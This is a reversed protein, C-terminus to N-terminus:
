RLNGISAVVNKATRLSREYRAGLVIIVIGGAGAWIWWETSQYVARIQPEFTAIGHVIAVIGGVVFPAQLRRVLGVIVAAIALVGIAVLRWVDSENTTEFLSPLFLAMLGGGLARTSRLHPERALRLAGAVLLSLAIPISVWEVADVSGVAISAVAVLLAYTLAVWGTARDVPLRATLQSAVFLACFLSVTVLARAFGPSSDDLLTAEVAVVLTLGAVLLAQGVRPTFPRDGPRGSCQGFAAVALVGLAAAVWVDATADAPGSDLSQTVTVILLGAVGAAALADLYGRAWQPARVVSGVLLLAAAVSGVLVAEITTEGTTSLATPVVAVLLAALVFLPTTTSRRARWDLAAIILLAGALPLTYAEIASVSSEDLRWWLAATALALALWGLQRRNGPAAFLGAPSVASLLTTIAALLLVIWTQQGLLAALLVAPVAVVAVGVDGAVRLTSHSRAALALSGAAALLAAAVAALDVLVSFPDLERTISAAAWLLAPALAFAAVRRELLFGGSGRPVIWGLVAAVLLLSLVVSGASFPVALAIAAAAVVFVSRRELASLVEPLPLAALGFLVIALSAVARAPDTFADDGLRLGVAAAGGLAVATALAVLAARQPVGAGPVAWRAVILLLVTAVTGIPWTDDGAWSVTYSLVTAVVGLVTAPLLLRGFRGTRQAGARDLWVLLAVAAAAEALWGVLVGGLSGLLPVLLLALVVAAWLLPTRVREATGTLRGFLAVLVPVVVLAAASTLTDTVPDAIRSAFGLAFASSGLATNVAGVALVVVHTATILLMSVTVAAAAYAATRLALRPLATTARLAFFALALVVLTPGVTIGLMAGASTLTRFAVLVIALSLALAGVAAFFAAVTRAVPSGAPREDATSGRAIVVIHALAVLAVAWLAPSVRPEAVRALEFGAFFAVVIGVAGIGAAIAREPVTLAAATHGRPAVLPHVLGALAVALFAAFVRTTTDLPEAVGAVLLGIGPAFAVAAAVSAVRLASARHWVSFGVASLVLTAGWYVLADSSGADFLDNARVAFADLYVLVVAFAGIGEATSALNKRRLVSAVAFAAVTIAGIIVSRWVIGYTIFAYVLFYIAAISVLSVGVIILAVQVSSRRPAGPVPAAPAAAPSLPPVAAASSPATLPPGVPPSLPQAADDVPDPGTPLLTPTAEAERAALASEFRIRGILQVREDLLGAVDTSVLALEAAAPNALDLGCTTCVLATLTTFCAPCQSTSTLDNRDRPFRATDAHRAYSTPSDDM